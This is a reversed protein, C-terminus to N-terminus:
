VRYAIVWYLLEEYGMTGGTEESILQHLLKVKDKSFKIM